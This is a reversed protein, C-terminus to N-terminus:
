IKWDKLNFMWTKVQIEWHQADSSSSFWFHITVGDKHFLISIDDKLFQFTFVSGWLSYVFQDFAIYKDRM